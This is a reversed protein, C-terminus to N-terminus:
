DLGAAGPEMLGEPTRVFAVRIFPGPAAPRALALASRKVGVVWICREHQYLLPTRRRLERPVKEDVFIDQLKKEHEMGAPRMRAGPRWFGVGLGGGGAVAPVYAVLAEAQEEGGAAYVAASGELSSVQARWGPLEVTGGQLRWYGARWGADPPRVGRAFRVGMAVSEAQWGGPLSLRRGRRGRWLAAVAQVLRESPAGPGGCLEALAAVVIQAELAPHLPRAPYSLQAEEGERRWLEPLIASVQSDLWGGLRGAQLALRLFSAPAGPSLDRLLPILEARVRNRQFSRSANSSDTAWPQGRARCYAETDARTLELLPRVLRPGAAGWPNTIPEMGRLGRIGTGRLLRLLVTELQDDATHGTAVARAGLREAVDGLARYRCRRAADEWSLRYARREAAVDVAVCTLAVGLRGCLEALLAREAEREMAPRLGHDIYCASLRLRTHPSEVLASLALLLSSSDAGGSAAVVIGNDGSGILGPLRLGRWVAREFRRRQDSRESM